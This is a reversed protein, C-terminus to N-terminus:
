ARRRVAERWLTYLGAGIILVIGLWGRADPFTGFFVLGWIVALPMSTYEFPAVLAAENMRYAQAMLMGGAAVAAGTGLFFIWDHGGPLVWPRFLFALSADASGALHGDGTWLGMSVSTVIFGCQTYFNITAAGETARASRTMTQTTAYTFASLLVLMAAWRFQGEPNLMVIVGVLGVVVATWRHWGVREGLFVVSLLTLLIPAIFGIAAADALPLAALGLFYSANSVMVIMARALHFGPRRTRWIAGQGTAAAFSLIFIVGILGRVLIVEHLPYAGSLAKICLDNLSLTASGAMACLIGLVVHRRHAADAALSLSESSM